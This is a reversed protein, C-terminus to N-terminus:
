IEVHLNRAPPQTHTISLLFTLPFINLQSSNDCVSYTFGPHLYAVWLVYLLFSPTPPHLETTLHMRASVPMLTSVWCLFGLFEPTCKSNVCFYIFYYYYYFAWSISTSFSTFCFLFVLFLCWLLCSYVPSWPFLWQSKFPEMIYTCFHDHSKPICLDRRYANQTSNHSLVWNSRWHFWSFNSFILQLNKLPLPHIHTLPSLSVSLPLCVCVHM